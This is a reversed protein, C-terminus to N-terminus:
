DGTRTLNYGFIDIQMLHHDNYIGGIALITGTVTSQKGSSGGAALRQNESTTIDLNDVIYGWQVVIKTIYESGQLTLTGTTTGSPTPPYSKGNINISVVYSEKDDLGPVGGQCLQLTNVGTPPFAGSPTDTKAFGLSQGFSFWELNRPNITLM